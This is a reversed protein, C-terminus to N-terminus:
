NNKWDDDNLISRVFGLITKVLTSEVFYLFSSLFIPLFRILNKEKM